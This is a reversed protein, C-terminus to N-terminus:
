SHVNHLQKQKHQEEVPNNTTTNKQEQVACANTRWCFDLCLRLCFLLVGEAGVTGGREEVSGGKRCLSFILNTQIYTQMIM